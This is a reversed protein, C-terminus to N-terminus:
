QQTAATLLALGPLISTVSGPHALSTVLTTVNAPTGTINPKLQLPLNGSAPIFGTVFPVSGAALSVLGVPGSSSGGTVIPLFTASLSGALAPADLGTAVLQSVTVGFEYGGVVPIDGLAFGDLVPLPLTQLSPIASGLSIAGIPGLSPLGAAGASQAALAAVAAMLFMKNM